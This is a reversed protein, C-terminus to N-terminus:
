CIVPNSSSRLHSRGRTRPLRITRPAWLSSRRRSRRTYRGSRERRPHPGIRARSGSGRRRRGSSRRSARPRTRLDDASRRDNETVPRRPLQDRVVRRDRELLRRGQQARYVRRQVPAAERRQGARSPRAHCGPRRYVPEGGYLASAVGIDFEGPGLTRHEGDVEAPISEEVLDHALSDFAARPDGGHAFGCESTDTCWALFADLEKEFGESQTITTETYSLSPDIAGDLVAARLHTPFLNAYLSGLYTGYSFGYYSIQPEGMTARIADM